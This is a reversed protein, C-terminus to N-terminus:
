DDCWYAHTLPTHESSVQDISSIVHDRKTTSTTKCDFAFEDDNEFVFDLCHVGTSKWSSICAVESYRRPMFRADKEMDSGWTGIIKTWNWGRTSVGELM